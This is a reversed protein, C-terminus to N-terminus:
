AGRRRLEAEGARRMAAVPAHEVGTMLEVQRAAQHLLMPFGGVVTGGAATVAAGLSTPWPAYVVDLVPVGSKAVAPAFRDAAGAPLTSVVLDVGLHAEIGGPGGFEAVAIGAGMREAAAGLEGTRDLSRVLATVAGDGTAGLGRLAALASAATAGGGLIAATRVGGIGAERLAAVIGDVDTNHAHRSGGRFVLTNAGGVEVAVPDVTDALTMAVRKLPMTLSLGAWPDAAERECRALFVALGQEDCEHREYHWDMGLEAYAATHLVPSLSHAIPSGLVAARM